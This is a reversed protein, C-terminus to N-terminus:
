LGEYADAFARSAPASRAARPDRRVRRGSAGCRVGADVVAADARTDDAAPFPAHRPLARARPHVLQLAAAGRPPASAEPRDATSAALDAVREVDDARRLSGDVSAARASRRRRRGCPRARFYLLYPRARAVGSRRARRRERSLGGDSPPARRARPPPTACATAPAAGDRPKLVSTPAACSGARIPRGVAVDDVRCDSPPPPQQTSCALERRSSWGNTVADGVEAAAAASARRVM